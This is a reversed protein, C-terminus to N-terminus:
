EASSPNVTPTTGVFLSHDLNLIMVTGQILVQNHEQKGWWILGAGAGIGAGVVAGVGGGIMAGAVAASGTTLSLGAVKAAPHGNNVIAGEESVRSNQHADSAHDFDIIEANFAYRTGDPLTISDPQLRMMAGNGFRKAARVETVRGRIVSGAPLLVQGRNLIDNTLHASFKEGEHTTTTSLTDDLAAHILTGMPLENSRTPAAMVVGSTIDNPDVVFGDPDAIAMETSRREAAPAPEPVRTVLTPTPAAAPAPTMPVAPSPKQYHQPVPTSATTISDNLDEPHSTGTTQAPLTSAAALISAVALTTLKM